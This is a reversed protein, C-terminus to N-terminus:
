FDWEALLNFYEGKLTIENRDSTSLVSYPNSSDYKYAYTDERHAYGALGTLRQTLRYSGLFGIQFSVKEVNEKGNPSEVNFANFYLHANVQFGLKNTLGFWFESGGHAGGFKAKQDILDKTDLPTRPDSINEPLEKYFPGFFFRMEHRDGLKKRYVASLESAAFTKTASRYTYGSLDVIGLFGWPTKASFYGVGLRGTGGVASFNTRTNYDSNNSRYDMSTVLYSAVGYWGETRDISKRVTAIDEAAQSRDGEHVKFSMKALDSPLRLNAESQVSLAYSGGPWDPMFPMKTSSQTVEQVLGWKNNKPNLKYLGVKYNQAYPSESWSLERVFETEPKTPVPAVLKKGILSFSVLTDTESVASAGIARIAFQYQKAVPLKLTMSTEHILSKPQLIDQGSKLTVEYQVAGRTPTWAIQVEAVDNENTELNQENKPKTVLVPELGVPLDMPESWDGPVGRYDRSRIRISYKGPRLKGNFVAEKSKFVQPPTKTEKADKGETKHDALQDTVEIEYLTADEVAEWEFQISRLIENNDALISESIAFLFITALLALANLKRVQSRFTM